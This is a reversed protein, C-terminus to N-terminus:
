YLVSRLYTQTSWLLHLTLSQIQDRAGKERAGKEQERSGLNQLNFLKGRGYVEVMFNREQFWCVMSQVEIVM